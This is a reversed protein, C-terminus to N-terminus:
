LVQGLQFLPLYLAVVLGGVLGGLVVMVSPEVLRSLAAVRRTVEHELQQATRELLADLSGSEEGIHMMQLMMGSFLEPTTMRTRQPGFRELARTLSQGNVLARRIQRTAADFRPHGSTGELHHLAETLPLGATSLTALTRTWRAQCSLRHLPGWGPLRWMADLAIRRGAPHQWTGWAVGSGLGIMALVNPWANTVSHSLTLVWRTAAPLQGGLATFMGEFAPIVWVMMVALVALAIVLVVMPYTLASRLQRRLTQRSELQEALRQLVQPLSGSAEGAAITHVYQRPLNAQARLAAHLARGSMIQRRLNRLLAQTARPPHGRTMLELGALLPLGAQLLVRLQRTFELLEHEPMRSV